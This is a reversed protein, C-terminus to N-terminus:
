AGETAAFEVGVPMGIQTVNQELVKWNGGDVDSQLLVGWKESGQDPPGTEVVAWIRGEMDDITFGTVGILNKPFVNSTGSDLLTEIHLDGPRLPSKGPVIARRLSTSGPRYRALEAWYLTNGFLRLTGPLYIDEALIEVATTNAILPARRISGLHPLHFADDPPLSSAGWYVFGEESDIALGTTDSLATTLGINYDYRLGQSINLFTEVGKGDLDARKILGISPAGWWLKEGDIVLATAGGEEIVTTANSGDFETRVIGESTAIYFHRHVPSYTFATPNPPVWVHESFFNALVTNNTGDTNIRRLQNYSRPTVPELYRNYGRDVIYLSGQSDTIPQSAVTTASLSPTLSLVIITIFTLYM